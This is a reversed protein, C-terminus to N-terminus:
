THVYTNNNCNHQRCHHEEVGMGVRIPPTDKPPKELFCLVCEMSLVAVSSLRPLLHYLFLLFDNFLSTTLTVLSMVDMHIHNVKESAAVAGVEKGEAGLVRKQRGVVSESDPVVRCGTCM